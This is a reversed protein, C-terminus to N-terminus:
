QDKDNIFRTPAFKDWSKEGDKYLSKNYAKKYRKQKIIRNSAWNLNHKEFDVM